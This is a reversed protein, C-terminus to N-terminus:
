SHIDYAVSFFISAGAQYRGVLMGKRSWDGKSSNVGDVVFKTDGEFHVWRFGLTKCQQIAMLVAGAKALTPDLSGLFSNCQAAVVLGREDWVLAGYGM